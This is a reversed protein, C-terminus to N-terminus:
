APRAYWVYPADVRTVSFHLRELLRRSALNDALVEAVLRRCAPQALAWDALAGVAETGYRQGRWPPALGYGIEATGEEDPGGKWGCDGIVQGSERHRVLWGLDVGAAEATAAAGLASRTDATPWGAGPRLQALDSALIARAAALSLPELVLRPTVISRRPQRDADPDARRSAEAM